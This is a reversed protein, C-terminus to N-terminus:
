TRLPLIRQFGTDHVNPWYQNAKSQAEFDFRRVIIADFAKYQGTTAELSFVPKPLIAREPILRNFHKSVVSPIPFDDEESYPGGHDCPIDVFRDETSSWVKQKCKWQGVNEIPRYYM